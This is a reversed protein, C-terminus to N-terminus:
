NLGLSEFSETVSERWERINRNDSFEVPIKGSGSRTIPCVCCKASWTMSHALCLCAPCEPARLLPAPLM